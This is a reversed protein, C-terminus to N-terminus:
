RQRDGRPKAFVRRTDQQHGTNGSNRRFHRKRVIGDVAQKKSHSSDTVSEEALLNM